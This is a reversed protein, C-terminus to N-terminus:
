WSSKPNNTFTTSPETQNNKLYLYYSRKTINLFSCIKDIHGESHFYIKNLYKIKQIFESDM